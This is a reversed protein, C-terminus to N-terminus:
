SRRRTSRDFALVGFGASLLLLASPEPVGAITITLTSPQDLSFPRSFTSFEEFAGLSVTLEGDILESALLEFRDQPDLDTAFFLVDQNGPVVSVLASRIPPPGELLIGIEVGPAGGTPGTGGNFDPDATEFTFSVTEIQSSESFPYPVSSWGDATYTAESFITFGLIESFELTQSITLASAQVPPLVVFLLLSLNLVLWTQSACRAAHRQVRSRM